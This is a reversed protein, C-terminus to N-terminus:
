RERTEYKRKMVRTKNLLLSNFTTIKYNINM